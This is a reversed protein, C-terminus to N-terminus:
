VQQSAQAVLSDPVRVPLSSPFIMISIISNPPDPVRELFSQKILKLQRMGPMLLVNPSASLSITIKQVRDLLLAMSGLQSFVLHQEQHSFFLLVSISMWLLQVLLVVLKSIKQGTLVSHFVLVAILLTPILGVLGSTLLLSLIYFFVKRKMDELLTVKLPHMSLM